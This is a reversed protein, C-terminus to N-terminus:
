NCESKKARRKGVKHMNETIIPNFGPIEAALLRNILSNITEGSKEAHAKIIEKQGKYIRLELRNYNAATFEAIDKSRSKKNIVKKMKEAM